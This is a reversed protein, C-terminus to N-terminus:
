RRRISFEDIYHEQRDADSWWGFDVDRTDGFKIGMVRHPVDGLYEDLMRDLDIVVHRWRGDPAFDARGVLPRSSRERDWEGSLIIGYGSRGDDLIVHIGLNADGASSRLRFDIIPYDNTDYSYQTAREKGGSRTLEQRYMWVHGYRSGGDDQIKLCATGSFAQESTLSVKYLGETVAFGGEIARDFSHRVLHKDFSKFLQLRASSGIAKRGKRKVVAGIEYPGDPADKHIKVKFMFVKSEGANDFRFRYSSPRSKWRKPLELAVSGRQRGGVDNQLMVTIDFEQTTILASHPLRITVGVPDLVHLPVPKTVTMVEGSVEYEMSAKAMYLGADLEEVPVRFVLIHREGPLMNYVKGLTEARVGPVGSLELTGIDVIDEGVNKVIITLGAEEGRVINARNWSIEISLHKTKALLVDFESQPLGPLLTDVVIALKRDRLVYGLVRNAPRLQEKGEPLSLLELFPEVMDIRIFLLDRPGGDGGTYRIVAMTERRFNLENNLQFDEEDPEALVRSETDGSRPVDFFLYDKGEGSRSRIGELGTIEELHVESLVPLTGWTDDKVNAWSHYRIEVPLFSEDQPEAIGEEPKRASYKVGPLHSNDLGTVRVSFWWNDGSDQDLKKVLLRNWGSRLMVRRVVTDRASGRWIEMANGGNLRVSFPGPSGMWLKAQTNGPSFVYTHAAALSDKRSVPFLGRLGVEPVESKLLRWENGASIEGEAPAINKEDFFTRGLATEEDALFPGCALWERIYDEDQVRPRGSSSSTNHRAGLERWLAPTGIHMLYYCEPNSIYRELSSVDPMGYYGLREQLSAVQKLWERLTRKSMLGTGGGREGSPDLIVSSQSIDGAWGGDHSTGGASPVRVPGPYFHGILSDFEHAVIGEGLDPFANPWFFCAGGYEGSFPWDLERTTSEIRVSGGSYAFAYRKFTEFSKRAFDRQRSTMAISELHLEGDGGVRVMDTSPALCYLAKWVRADLARAEAMKTLKQLEEWENPSVYRGEPNGYQNAPIIWEKWKLYPAETLGSAAGSSPAPSLAFICLVVAPGLYLSFCKRILAM